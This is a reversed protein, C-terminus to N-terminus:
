ANWQAGVLEVLAAFDRHGWAKGLADLKGMLPLLEFGCRRCTAELARTYHWTGLTGKKHAKFLSEVHESWVIADILRSSAGGLLLEGQAVIDEHIRQRHEPRLVRDRLARLVDGVPGDDDEGWEEPPPEFSSQQAQEGLRELLDALTLSVVRWAYGRSGDM